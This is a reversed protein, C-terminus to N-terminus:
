MQPKPKNPKLKSYLSILLLGVVFCILYNGLFRHLFNFLEGATAGFQAHVYTPFVAVLAPLVLATTCLLYRRREAQINIVIDVGAHKIFHWYAGILVATGGFSSIMWFARYLEIKNTGITFLETHLFYWHQGLWRGGNTFSDWAIHLLIGVLLSVVQVRFSHKQVCLPRLAHRHPNPLMEVLDLRLWRFLGIIALSLPLCFLLGGLFTHSFDDWEWSARVCQFNAATKGFIFKITRSFQNLDDISYALDPAISGLILASLSLYKPCFRRLPLIAAPHAIPIPM